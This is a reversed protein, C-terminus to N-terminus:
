YSADRAPRCDGCVKMLRLVTAGMLFYVPGELLTWWPPMREMLDIAVLLLGHVLAAWALFRILPRYRPVDFSVFVIVAGHLAYLLSASRTMYGVLPAAPLEGMGLGRHVAAMWSEPMVVAFFALGDICGLVRLFIQLSRYPDAACAPPESPSAAPPTEPIPPLPPRM